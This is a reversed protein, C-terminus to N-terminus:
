SEDPGRKKPNKAMKRIKESFFIMGTNIHSIEAIERLFLAKL